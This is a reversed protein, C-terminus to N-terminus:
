KGKAKGKKALGGPKRGRKKPTEEKTKKGAPAGKKATKVVKKAAPKVVKKAAPKVVEKSRTARKPKIEEPVNEDQVEALAVDSTKVAGVPKVPSKAKRATKPKVPKPGAPVPKSKPLPKPAAVAKSKVSKALKFSAKVKVLTKDEVLQKLKLSLMKKFNGPLEYKAELYKAIAIPSSGTRDDLTVIATTIMKISLLFFLNFPRPFFEQLPILYEIDYRLIHHRKRRREPLM